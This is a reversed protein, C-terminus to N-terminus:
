MNVESLNELEELMKLFEVESILIIFFMVDVVVKM